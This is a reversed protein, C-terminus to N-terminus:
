VLKGFPTGDEYLWGGEFLEEATKWDSDMYVSCEGDEFDMATILYVSSYKSDKPLYHLCEGVLESGMEKLEDNTYPVYKPTEETVIEIWDKHFSTYNSDYDWKDTENVTTDITKGCLDWMDISWTYGVGTAPDVYSLGVRNFDSTSEVGLLDMMERLSKIKIKIKM